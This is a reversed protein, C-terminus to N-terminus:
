AADSGRASPAATGSGTTAFFYSAAISVPDDRDGPCNRFDQRDAGNKEDASAMAAYHSM